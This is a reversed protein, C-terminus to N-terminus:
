GDCACGPPQRCNKDVSICSNGCAKGARCVRCCQQLRVQQSDIRFISPLPRGKEAMLRELEGASAFPAMVLVVIGVLAIQARRDM